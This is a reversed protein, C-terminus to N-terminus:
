LMSLKGSELVLRDKLSTAEAGGPRGAVELGSGLSETEIGSCGFEGANSAIAAVFAEGWCTHQLM